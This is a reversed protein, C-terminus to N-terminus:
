VPELLAPAASTCSMRGLPCSTCSVATSSPVEAATFFEPVSTFSSDLLGSYDHSDMIGRNYVEGLKELIYSKYKSPFDASVQIEQTFNRIMMNGVSADWNFYPQFHKMASDSEARIVAESKYIPFDYDAIIQGYKWPKGISYDYSVSKQRPSFLIILATAVLVLAIRLAISTPNLLNNNKDM